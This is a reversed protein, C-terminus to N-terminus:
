WCPFLTVPKTCSQPLELADAISNGCNQGIGHFHSPTSVCYMQFIYVDIAKHLVATDGNSICQLYQLRTSFCQCQKHKTTTQQPKSVTSKIKGVTFERIYSVSQYIIFNNIVWIYNSCWRDVSSWSCRWEQSLVHSWHIPYLYNYSSILLM